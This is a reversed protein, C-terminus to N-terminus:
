IPTITSASEIGTSPLRTYGAGGVKTSHIHVHGSSVDSYDFRSTSQYVIIKLILKILYVKVKVSMNIYGAIFYFSTNKYYNVTYIQLLLNCVLIYIYIYM